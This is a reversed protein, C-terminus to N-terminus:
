IVVDEVIMDILHLDRSKGVPMAIRGARLRIANRGFTHLYQTMNCAADRDDMKAVTGWDQEDCSFM